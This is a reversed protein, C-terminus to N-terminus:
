DLLVSSKSNSTSLEVFKDMPPSWSTIFIHCCCWYKEIFLKKKIHKWLFIFYRQQLVSAFKQWYETSCVKGWICQNRIKRSWKGCLLELIFHIWWFFVQRKTKNRSIEWKMSKSLFLFCILEFLRVNTQNMMRSPKDFLNREAFEEGWHKKYKKRIEPWRRQLMGM